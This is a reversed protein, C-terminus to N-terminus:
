RERTREWHEAMAKGIDDPNWGTLRALTANEQRWRDRLEEQYRVGAPCATAAVPSAAVPATLPVLSAIYLNAPTGM